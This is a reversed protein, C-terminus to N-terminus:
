NILGDLVVNAILSGTLLALRTLIIKDIFDFSSPHEWYRRLGSRGHDNDARTSRGFVTHYWGDINEQFSNENGLSNMDIIITNFRDTIIINIIIM